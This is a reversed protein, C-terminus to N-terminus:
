KKQLYKKVQRKVRNRAHEFDRINGVASWSKWLKVFEEEVEFKMIWMDKFGEKKSRNKDLIRIKLEVFRGENMLYYAAEYSNVVKVTTIKSM